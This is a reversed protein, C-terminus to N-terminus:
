KTKQMELRSGFLIQYYKNQNNDDKNIEFQFDFDPAFLSNSSEPLVKIKSGTFPNIIFMNKGERVIYYPYNKYTYTGVFDDLMTTDLTISKHKQPYVIPQNFIIKTLASRYPTAETENNSLIIISIDNKTIHFIETSYGPWGGGHYAFDGFENKGLFTGYGYYLKSTGNYRELRVSTASDCMVHPYLMKQIITDLGTINAYLFKNWKLLDSTTTNIIGDGQIGDLFYVYDYDPLSDPLVYRKLSDSWVYGYAYNDLIEGSRRSNYVRTHTMQLPMFINQAMFDKFTLGSVKEIISALLVYGTNCYEWKEGPKFYSAPKEKALMAIVDENFAIKKHDWKSLLLVGYNPLGSTHTLMHHIKINHYPLEPFFKRLSDNLNLLGQKELMLIGMATFQKSVSALEFVSSDNLPIQKDFDSFGFSKQYLIKGKESILVNGNFKYYDAQGQLYRDVSEIIGKQDSNTCSFVLILSIASFLMIKKM